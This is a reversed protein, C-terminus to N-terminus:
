QWATGNWHLMLTGSDTSGVGVTWAGGSQPIVAVDSLYNTAGGPLPIKVQKWSQGNWHLALIGIGSKGVAWANDASSASVATLEAAPLGRGLVCTWRLGNWHLILVGPRAWGVAWVSRASTAAVGFLWYRWGIDPSGVDGWRQGNWHVFRARGVASRMVVWVNTGSTAAVGSFVYGRVGAPLPVRTWAAGNWHRILPGHNYGVLWADSGSTAAVGAVGEGYGYGLGPVPVQRVTTGAVRVILPSELGHEADGIGYGGIAWAGGPFLAVDGLDSAPPLARSSLTKWAAGNWLAVLARTRLGPVGTWGVAVAISPSRAAVGGLGGQVSPLDWGSRQGATGAAPGGALPLAACALRSAAPPSGAPPSAACGATLAAVVLIGALRRHKSGPKM